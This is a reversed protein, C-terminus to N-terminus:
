EMEKQCKPCITTLGNLNPLCIVGCEDCRDLRSKRVADNLIAQTAKYANWRERRRSWTTHVMDRHKRGQEQITMTTEKTTNNIVCTNYM